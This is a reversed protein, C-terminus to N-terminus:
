RVMSKCEEFNLGYAWWSIQIDEVLTKIREIAAHKEVLKVKEQLEKAVSREMKIINEFIEHLERMTSRNVEITDKFHKRLKGVVSKEM